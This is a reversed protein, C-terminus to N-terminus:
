NGGNSIVGGKLVREPISKAKVSSPILMILLTEHRKSFVM